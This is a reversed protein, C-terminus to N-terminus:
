RIIRTLEAQSNMEATSPAGPKKVGTTDYAGRGLNVVQASDSLIMTYPFSKLCDFLDVFKRRGCWWVPSQPLKYVLRCCSKLSALLRASCSESDPVKITQVPTALTKQRSLRVM